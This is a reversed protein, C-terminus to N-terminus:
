ALLSPPPPSPFYSYFVEDLVKLLHTVSQVGLQPQSPLLASTTTKTEEAGIM